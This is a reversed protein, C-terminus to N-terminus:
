FGYALVANIIGKYGFGANASISIKNGFSVGIADVQYAFNNMKDKETRADATTSIRSHALGAGIGSHLRFSEDNIYNYKLEALVTYSNTAVSGIQTGGSLVDKSAREFIFTGGLELKETIYGRYGAFVAGSYNSNTTTVQGNTASTVIIDALENGIADASAVGYGLYIHNGKQAFSNISTFILSLAIICLLQTTKKM